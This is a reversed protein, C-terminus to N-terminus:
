QIDASFEVMESHSKLDNYHEKIKYLIALKEKDVSPKNLYEEEITGIKKFCYEEKDFSQTEEQLIERNIVNLHNVASLYRSMNKHNIFDRYHEPERIASCLLFLLLNIFIKKNPFCHFIVKLKDCLREIERLNLDYTNTYQEILKVVDILKKNELDVIKRSPFDNEFFGLIFDCHAEPPLLNITLNFFRRLYGEADYNDGYCKKVICKLQATDTAIVFCLGSQKLDTFLHKLCELFEIAYSPRCRDLEDVLIYIKKGKKISKKVSKKFTAVIEKIGKDAIHQYSEQVGKLVDPASSLEGAATKMIPPIIAVGTRFLNKLTLFEKINNFLQSEKLDICFINWFDILPVDSFDNEWANFYVVKKKDQKLQIRWQNLLFTKGSGFKGNLNIVYTDDRSEFLRKIKELNLKRNLRDQTM